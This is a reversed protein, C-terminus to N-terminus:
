ILIIIMRMESKLHSQNENDNANLRAPCNGQAKTCIRCQEVPTVHPRTHAFGVIKPLTRIRGSFNKYHAFGVIFKGLFELLRSSREFGTSNALIHAFGVHTSIHSDSM